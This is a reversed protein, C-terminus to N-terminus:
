RWGWAGGGGCRLLGVVTENLLGGDERTLTKLYLEAHKNVYNDRTTPAPGRM